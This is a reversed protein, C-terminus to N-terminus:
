LDTKKGKAFNQRDSVKIKLERINKMANSPISKIKSTADHMKDIGEKLMKKWPTYKVIVFIVHFIFLINLGLQFFMFFEKVDSGVSDSLTIELSLKTLITIVVSNIELFNVSNRNFPHLKVVMILYWLLILLFIFDRYETGLTQNLNQLFTLILKQFFIITEWYYFEKKYDKYFFQFVKFSNKSSKMKSVSPELASNKGKNKIM